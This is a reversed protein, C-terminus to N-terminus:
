LPIPKDRGLTPYTKSSYSHKRAITFGPQGDATKESSQPICGM